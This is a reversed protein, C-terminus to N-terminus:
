VTCSTQWMITNMYVAKPECKGLDVCVATYSAKLGGVCHLVFICVYM